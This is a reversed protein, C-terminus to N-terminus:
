GSLVKMKRDVDDETITIVSGTSDPTTSSDIISENSATRNNADDDGFTTPTLALGQVSFGGAYYYDTVFATRARESASSLIAIM